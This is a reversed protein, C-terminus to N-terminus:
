FTFSGPKDPIKHVLLLLSSLLLLLLLLLLLSSIIIITVVIIVIVFRKSNVGFDFFFDIEKRASLISDSGHTANRTGDLGFKARLSDPRTSAALSINAPSNM